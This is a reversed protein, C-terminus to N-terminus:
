CWPLMIYLCEAGSITGSPSSALFPLIFHTETTIASLWAVAFKCNHISPGNRPLHAFYGNLDQKWEVERLEVKIVINGRPCNHLLRPQFLMENCFSTFYFPEIDNGHLRGRVTGAKSAPPGVRQSPTLQLPLPALEQAYLHSRSAREKTPEVNLLNRGGDVTPEAIYLAHWKPLTVTFSDNKGAIATDELKQSKKMRVQLEGTFDVLRDRALSSKKDVVTHLGLYGFNRMVLM